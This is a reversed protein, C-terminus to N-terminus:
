SQSSPNNVNVIKPPPKGKGKSKGHSPAVPESDFAEGDVDDAAPPRPSPTSKGDSKKVSSNACVFSVLILLLLAMSLKTTASLKM